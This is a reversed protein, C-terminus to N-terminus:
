KRLQLSILRLQLQLLRLFISLLSLYRQPLHCRHFELRSFCGSPIFCLSFCVFVFSSFSFFFFFFLSPSTMQGTLNISQGFNHCYGLHNLSLFLVLFLSFILRSFTVFLLFSHVFLYDHLQFFSAASSIIVQTLPCVQNVGIGMGLAPNIGLAYPNLGALPNISAGTTPQVSAAAGHSPRGM